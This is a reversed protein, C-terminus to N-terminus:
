GQSLQAAKTYRKEERTGTEEEPSHSYPLHDRSGELMPTPVLFGSRGRICGVNKSVPSEFALGFRLAKEGM